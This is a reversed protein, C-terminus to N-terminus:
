VKLASLSSLISKGEKLVPALENITGKLQKVANILEFTEKQAEHPKMDDTSKSKADRAEKESIKSKNFDYDAIENKENLDDSNLAIGGELKKILGQLHSVRKKTEKDIDGKKEENEFHERHTVARYNKLIVYLLGWVVVSCVFSIVLNKMYSSAIIWILVFSAIHSYNCDTSNRFAIMLILVLSVILTWMYLLLVYIFFHAKKSFFAYMM